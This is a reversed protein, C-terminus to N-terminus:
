QTLRDQWERLNLQATAYAETRPPIQSAIAIAESVDQEAATEAMALLAWSWENVAQQAQPWDASEEPVSQALEIAQVLDEFNGTQATYFAQQYSQASQQQDQWDSIATQAEEHFAQNPPIQSAVAIAQPLQGLEALQRAQALLPENDIEQIRWNWDAIADQAEDYLASNPSISDAEAIAAQLAARDGQSALVKARDLFPRDEIEAIDERWRQIQDQTEEWLPNSAGVKGAEAIAAQLDAVSGPQAIRKAWNLQAVAELELQWQRKLSQARAYLPRDSSISQLRVIASEYGTTTGAWTLEYADAVTRFDAIEEALQAEPPIKSVIDLAEASNERVLADEALDLLQRSLKKIVSQAREFVYSEKSIAAVQELAELVAKVGGGDALREANALANVDERTATILNVLEEHRTTSWYDNEVARLRIATSFAERFKSAKLHDEAETFLAEAQEWIEQWTGIRSSVEDAAATNEPIRRAIKIAEDLEGQHFTQNAITLVQNAWDEVRENIEPRLPHDNPLAEVLSIAALLSDVNGQDAYADACQFRTTASATPWFIARCNPLNPIRFLSVASIGALGGLGALILFAWLTWRNILREQQPPEYDDAATTTSVPPNNLSYPNSSTQPNPPTPTVMQSRLAAIEQPSIGYTPHTRPPPPPQPSRSTGPRPRQDRKPPPMSQWNPLEAPQSPKPKRSPRRPHNQFSSM